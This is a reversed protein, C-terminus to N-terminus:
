YAHSFVETYTFKACQQMIILFHQADDTNDHHHNKQINIKHTAYVTKKKKCDRLDKTSIRRM